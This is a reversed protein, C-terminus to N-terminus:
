IYGMRTGIDSETLHNQFGNFEDFLYTEHVHCLTKKDPHLQELDLLLQTNCESHFVNEKLRLERIILLLM